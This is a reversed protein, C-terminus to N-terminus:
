VKLSPMNDRIIKLATSMKTESLSNIRSSIDQKQEYTVVPTREHKAPRASSKKSGKQTSPTVAKKSDKKSSKSSKAAKKNPAPPSKKKQTILEVQRSMAAIQQQLKTLQTQEEEEEEVEEEEDSEEPEPSSGPSQPGSSPTNADIWQHRNAWEANFVEEFQHGAQSVIDGPRNFKYCNQFVLRVDAEFESAKEYEGQDLKTKITGFDMPKKIISHYSPINLAVPDVPTMFPYSVGAYKPKSLENLVKECFKLETQYKKKKPKQNAYPLDRPAPRHIERKPRGDGLTSDRRILPVGEPGLAFTQPSSASPPSRASGPLSSRSERRSHPVRVAMTDPVKKKRDLATPEKVEPGPLQQLHKDFSAKMELAAKTVAHDPGNFIMTNQVIQNLDAICADVTPYKEARLKDELTKLDMPQTVIEPYRPLNMGVYDVPATFWKAASIRKVNGITRQLFKQQPKTLPHSASQADESTGNVQTNIAPREPVKFGTESTAEDTRSRKTAPGDAFEDDERERTTKVSTSPADEMVHDTPLHQNSFVAPTHETFHIPSPAPGIPTESIAGETLPVPPHNPIHAVAISSSEEAAIRPNNNDPDISHNIIPDLAPSSDLQSDQFSDYPESHSNFHHESADGAPDPNMQTDKHQSQEELDIFHESSASLPAIDERVDSVPREPVASPSKIVPAESRSSEHALDDPASQSSSPPLATAGSAPLSSELDFSSQSDNLHHAVSHDNTTSNQLDNIHIHGNTDHASTNVAPAPDFSATQLDRSDSRSCM